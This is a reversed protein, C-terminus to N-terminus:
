AKTPLTLHTYSVAVPQDRGRESLARAVGDAAGGINYLGALDRYQDMLARTQRYNKASDDHGERLGVVTLNPFMEQMVQLFGAEREHHAAYRLSGAILAVKGERAGIFRGILYGATRGAARNDLGIYAARQSHTIDSIVTLVPVGREALTAVAERVAPDELAMMVLGDSRKGHRLLAQALAEPNFSDVWETRCKVNYPAWQGQSYGVMDGLMNIFGSTDRPLLFTVRTPAPALMAYLDAEPLYNLEAAAKLVRQVTAQRVGARRNLVRDVTATSVGAQAAVDTIGPLLRTMPAVGM